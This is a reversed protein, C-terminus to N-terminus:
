NIAMRRAHAMMRLVEAEDSDTPPVHHAKAFAEIAAEFLAQERVHFALQADERAAEDASQILYACTM